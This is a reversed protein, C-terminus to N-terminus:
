FVKFGYWVRNDKDYLFAHNNAFSFAFSDNLPAGDPLQTAATEKGSRDFFRLKAAVVDLLVFEYGKVGTFGVSTYNLDSVDCNFTLALSTVKSPKKRSYMALSQNDADWFVVQKAVFDYAGVAQENPQNMGSVIERTATPQTADETVLTQWGSEGYGNGEISKTKPNYWIGRWDFMASGQMANAGSADFAEMPFGENGAIVCFYVQFRANWAVAAGNTGGDQAMTYEIAHGKVNSYPRQAHLIGTSILLILAM